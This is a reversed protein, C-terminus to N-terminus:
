RQFIKERVQRKKQGSFMVILLGAIIILTALVFRWGLIEGLFLWGMLAAIPPVTLQCVGSVATSLRPLVAYWIAYGCGSTIAGSLVAYIVGNQTLSPKPLILLILPLALLSARLFNGATLALPSGAKRGLLTYVGWGIGSLTMLAIGAWDPTVLTPFVLYLFGSFAVVAGVFELATLERRFASASLITLQVSAFLCLAGTGTDLTVYALSFMLAYLLLMAAGPWSGASKSKRTSLLLALILAGSVLRILTFEIPGMNVSLLGARALLSNAAFALLALITLTVVRLM